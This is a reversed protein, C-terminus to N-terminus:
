KNEEKLIEKFMDKYIITEEILIEKFMHQYELKKEEQKQKRYIDNIKEQVENLNQKLKMEQKKLDELKKM